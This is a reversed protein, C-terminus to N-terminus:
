WIPGGRLLEEGEVWLTPRDPRFTARAPTERPGEGASDLGGRPALETVDVVATERRLQRYSEHRLPRTQFEAHWYEASEMYASVKAATHTVGKGQSVSLSRSNPRIANYVPIGVWDLGTVNAVRTIGLTQRHRGFDEWTESAPRRRQASWPAPMSAAAPPSTMPELNIVDTMLVDGPGTGAMTPDLGRTQRPPRRCNPRSCCMTAVM